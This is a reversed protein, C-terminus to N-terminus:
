AERLMWEEEPVMRLFAPRFLFIDKPLYHAFDHDPNRYSFRRFPNVVRMSWYDLVAMRSYFTVIEMDGVAVVLRFVHGLDAQIAEALHEIIAPNARGEFRHSDNMSHHNNSIPYLTSQQRIM